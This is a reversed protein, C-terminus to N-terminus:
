TRRTARDCRPVAHPRPGTGRCDPHRDKSKGHRRKAAKTSSTFPPRLSLISTPSCASSRFSRGLDKVCRPAAWAPEELPEGLWAMTLQHLKLEEAGVEEQRWACASRDSGPMSLRVAFFVACEVGYRRDALLDRM